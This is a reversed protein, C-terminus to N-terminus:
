GGAPDSGTPAGPEAPASESPTAESSSGPSFDVELVTPQETFLLVGLLIGALVAGLVSITGLVRRDAV